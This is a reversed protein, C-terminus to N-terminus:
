PSRLLKQCDKLVKETARFARQTEKPTKPAGQDQLGRVKKHTNGGTVSGSIPVGPKTHRPKEKKEKKKRRKQELCQIVEVSVIKTVDLELSMLKFM